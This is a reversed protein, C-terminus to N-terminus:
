SDKDGHKNWLLAVVECIIGCLIYASRNSRRVSTVPTKSLDLFRRSFIWLEDNDPSVFSPVIDPPIIGLSPSFKRLRDNFKMEVESFM